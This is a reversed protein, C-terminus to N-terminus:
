NERSASQKELDQDTKEPAARSKESELAQERRTEFYCFNAIILSWLFILFGYTVTFSLLTGFAAGLLASHSLGEVLETVFKEILNNAAHYIGAVDEATPDMFINKLATGAIKSSSAVFNENNSVMKGIAAFLLGLMVSLRVYGWQDARLQTKRDILWLLGSGLAVCAIFVVRVTFESEDSQGSFLVFGMFGIVACSLFVEVRGTLKYAWSFLANPEGKLLITLEHAHRASHIRGLMWLGACFTVWGFITPLHTLGLLLLIIILFIM